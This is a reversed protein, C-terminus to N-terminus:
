RRRKREPDPPTPDKSPETGVLELLLKHAELFRPAEELSKLVERRAEAKQGLKALMRALRFHTDAPDSEDLIALAQYAALAETDQGLQESAKALGRHPAPILPNVALMRLSDKALGKWDSEAEELEMLRLYAPGASGERAALAELASREGAPDSTKRCVAALLVYANDEGLYEPDALRLKEIAAKAKPWDSEAVLQAALRRLGPFSKPHKELWEEVAKSPATPPLDPEEWTMGPAVAEAKKRAFAAFEADLQELTMGARKPLSENITVGAGLDDLVGRLGAMGAKEVLFEVALASEFYAFQLHMGSKPALFASSLQSLPKFDEGLLMARYRPTIPSGWAPDEKEEEYVSIGESLWRPMKNRTKNLTVVHCYEHWLVAEWNSPSEGQSAPSNATIVSGFCVGLFGEAGPLGFTRVAFEKKQPFIEVTVPGPITAGYKEGLTKRARALLALVRPGYLDAERPDMRVLFGDQKLTRFRSLADRLNTLNFALVNYGDADFIEAALKWGEDEQGLRLLDQCLQVKAAMYTPDFELAKRQYESGEAFRYKNSLERGIIHDVEPNEAWSALAKKRASAEEEPHSRLHALVAQYAWARPDQQNIAFVQKLLDGAEAYQEKDIRNAVRLLLSEAHRPNIKLAEDLTKESRARDGDEFARALLYHYYPDELASKPAKALTSAALAADQKDLALEATALNAEILDPRQKVAIDYCQDLVKRADAGRALFYRGLLVRGEPTAYRSPTSRIRADIVDLVAEAEAERGNYRYVDRALLLLAVSGPLRRLGDELSALAAPYLGQAMEARVKLLHWREIWSGNRVEEAALRAADDYRGVRFAKEAEAINPAQNQAASTAVLVSALALIALPLSGRRRTRRARQAGQHEDIEVM